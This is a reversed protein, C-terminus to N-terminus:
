VVRFGANITLRVRAKWDLGVRFWELGVRFWELGM